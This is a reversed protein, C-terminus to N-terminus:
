IRITSDRGGSAVVNGDPSVAMGTVAKTHGNLTFLQQWGDADRDWIKLTRDGSASFLRPPDSSFWVASVWMSHDQLVSLTVHPDNPDWVSALQLPRNAGDEGGVALQGTSSGLLFTPLRFGPLDSGTTLQPIQETSPGIRM